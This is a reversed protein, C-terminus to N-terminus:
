THKRASRCAADTRKLDAFMIAHNFRVATGAFVFFVPVLGFFFHMKAVAVSLSNQM